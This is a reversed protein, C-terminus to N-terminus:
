FSQKGLGLPGFQLQNIIVSIDVLLKNSSEVTNGNQFNIQWRLHMKSSEDVYRVTHIHLHLM